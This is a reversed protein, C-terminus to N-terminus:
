EFPQYGVKEAIAKILCDHFYDTGRYHDEHDIGDTMQRMVYAQDQTVVATFTKGLSDRDEDTTFTVSYFGQGGVGNRHYDYASIIAKM